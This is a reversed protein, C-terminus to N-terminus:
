GWSLQPLSSPGVKHTPYDRVKPTLPPQPDQWEEPENFPPQGEKASTMLSKIWNLHKYLRNEAISLNGYKLSKKKWKPKISKKNM